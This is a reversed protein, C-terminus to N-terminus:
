KDQNTWTPTAPKDTNTWVPMVTGRGSQDFFSPSVELLASTGAGGVEVGANEFIAPSVSLLTNTGTANTPASIILLAGVVNVSPTNSLTAGYQTIEDVNTANAWAASIVPDYGGVVWTYEAIETWTKSPTSNYSSYTITPADFLSYLAILLSDATIPTGAATFTPTSDGTTDRGVVDYSPEGNIPNSIRILIGGMAGDASNRFTFNSAAVDGSDAIKSYTGYWFNNNGSIHQLENVATWGSPTELATSTGVTTIGAVLMDGVALGTPKTITVGDVGSAVSAVNYSEPVPAAM